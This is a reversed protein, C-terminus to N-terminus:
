KTEEIAGAVVIASPTDHLKPTLTANAVTQTPIALKLSARQSPLTYDIEGRLEKVFPAMAVVLPTAANVIPCTVRMQLNNTIFEAPGPSLKAKVAIPETVFNLKGVGDEVVLKIPSAIDLRSDRLTATFDQQKQWPAFCTLHGVIDLPTFALRLDVKASGRVDLAFKVNDLSPSLAFDRLCVAAGDTSAKVDAEIRAFNPGLAKLATKGAECLGRATVKGLECTAKNIVERAQCAAVDANAQVRRRDNEIGQALRCGLDFQGCSRRDESMRFPCASIDCAQHQDCSVGETSPMPIKTDIRQPAASAVATVCAAAQSLASNTAAALLDKRIAVWTGAKADPVAFESKVLEDVRSEIADFAAPIVKGALLAGGAPPPAVPMLQLLATLSKDNILWAVGDLKYPVTIPNGNLTLRASTGGDTFALSQAVDIADKALVPINVRTLPARSLEGSINDRYRNLLGVLAEGVSSADVKEALKISSVKVSSLSPLLRLEIESLGSEATAATLGALVEMEGAVEPKLSSLMKRLDSNDGADAEVFQRKFKVTVRLLQEEGALKIWTVGLKAVADTLLLKQAGDLQVRLAVNPAVMTGLAKAGTEIADQRQKEASIPPWKNNVLDRIPDSCGTILGSFVLAIAWVLRM